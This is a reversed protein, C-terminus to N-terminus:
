TCPESMGCGHRVSPEGLACGVLINYTARRMSRAVHRVDKSVSRAGATGISIDSRRMDYHVSLSYNPSVPLNGFSPLPRFPREKV